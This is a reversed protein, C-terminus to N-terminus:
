KVFDGGPEDVEKNLNEMAAWRRPLIEALREGELTSM